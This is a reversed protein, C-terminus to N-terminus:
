AGRGEALREAAVLLEGFAARYGPNSEILPIGRSYSEAIRRDLPIRMLVPINEDACFADILSRDPRDKNVVVGVPLSWTERAVELAMQLDHLGFPTPETVLLACDAGRLTEVVPCATGPPADIIVTGREYWGSERAFRKLRRIVPPSMAEGVELIGQAFLLEGCHGAEVVGSPLGQESIAGTPCERSCSGCGHCLDTFVLTKSPLAAIAHYQCVEACRGCHSCLTEDVVPVLREVQVRETLHPNLFLAANPEEVDADLLACAGRQAAVLALSTAVLTKGTGGKGSAIVISSV